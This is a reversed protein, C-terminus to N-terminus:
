APNLLSYSLRESNDWRESIRGPYLENLRALAALAPQRSYGLELPPSLPSLRAIAANEAILPGNIDLLTAMKQVMLGSRGSVLGVLIGNEELKCVTDTVEPIVSDGVENLTGDIDAM